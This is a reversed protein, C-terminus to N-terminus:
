LKNSNLAVRKDDAILECMANREESRRSVVHSGEPRLGLVRRFECQETHGARVQQDLHHVRSRAPLSEASVRHQKCEDFGIGANNRWQLVDETRLIDDSMSGGTDSHPARWESSPREDCCSWVSIGDSM